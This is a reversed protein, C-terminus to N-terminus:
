HRIEPNQPSTGPQADVVFFLLATLLLAVAIALWSFKSSPLLLLGAFQDYELSVRFCVCSRQGTYPLATSSSRRLDPPNPGAFLKQIM